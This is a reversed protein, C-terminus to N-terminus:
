NGNPCCSGNVNEVKSDKNMKLFDEAEDNDLELVDGDKNCPFGCWGCRYIIDKCLEKSTFGFMSFADNICDHINSKALVGDNVSCHENISTLMIEYLSKMNVLEHSKVGDDKILQNRLTALLAAADISNILLLKDDM